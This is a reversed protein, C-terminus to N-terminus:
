AGLPRKAPIGPRRPYREPTPRSKRAMWVWRNEAGKFPQLRAAVLSDAGLIGVAKEGQIREQNSIAGKMAVVHGGLVLLPLSYELVVPLSALARSVALDHTERAGSRGYEEARACFVVLNELEMLQAANEIFACKKRQSEVAVVRVPLATALVLAPLGAGSGLDVINCAAQVQPITLLSLSDLFHVREIEEATSVSTVNLPAELLLDGLISLRSQARADLGYQVYEETATLRV